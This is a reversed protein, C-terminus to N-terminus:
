RQFSAKSAVGSTGRLLWTAKAGTSDNRGPTSCVTSRTIARFIICQSIELGLAFAPCKARGQQQTGLMNSLKFTFTRKVVQHLHLSLSACPHRRSAVDSLLTSCLHSGISLFWIPPRRHRALPCNIAFGVDMLPVPPLDPPQAGFATSSVEPSRGNTASHRSLFFYNKRIWRCFDAAPTTSRSVPPLGLRHPTALLCRLEIFSFRCSGWNSSAKRGSGFLSARFAGSRSCSANVAFRPVSLGVLPVSFNISSTQSHSFQQCAIFRTLAFLPFGPISPIVTSSSGSYRFSCQSVM